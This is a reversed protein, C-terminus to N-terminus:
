NFFMNPFVKEVDKNRYLKLMLYSKLFGYGYGFFQIITTIISLLGVIPNNLISSLLFILSFYLIFISILVNDLGLITLVTSILLTLCFLTPFWYIIKKTKKHWLNLISRAIGFKYVQKFFSTISIRRKHFVKVNIYLGTTLGMDNLRISLDPDEGPHIKGFGGSKNFAEKSIGMNFSRPQFNKSKKGGRLHGTTIFSTMSFSVAKQFNSFSKHSDDVGGFCDFYNNKLNSMLSLMYDEPLICDSDLIIFYNGKAKRMGFNRSDGPGSNDKFYYSINLEEKFFNIIKKSDLNSGDEVIVIEFDKSGQLNKFSILLEKIEQPRNYVPIIFSIDKALM